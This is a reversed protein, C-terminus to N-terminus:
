FMVPRVPKKEIGVRYEKKLKGGDFWESLGWINQSGKLEDDVLESNITGKSNRLIGLQSSINRSTISKGRKIALEKTIDRTTRPKGDVFLGLVYSEFTKRTSKKNTAKHPKVEISRVVLVGEKGVDTPETVSLERLLINLIKSYKDTQQRHYEYLRRVDNLLAEDTKVTEM